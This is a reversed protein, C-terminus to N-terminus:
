WAIRSHCRLEASSTSRRVSSAASRSTVASVRSMRATCFDTSEDGSQSVKMSSGGYSTLLRTALANARYGYGSENKAARPPKVGAVRTNKVLDSLGGAHLEPSAAGSRNGTVTRS